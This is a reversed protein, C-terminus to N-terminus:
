APMGVPQPARRRTFPLRLGPVRLTAVAALALLAAPGTAGLAAAGISLSAALGPLLLPRLVLPVERRLLGVLLVAVAAEGILGCVLLAELPAGGHLLAMGLGAAAARPLGAVMLLGTRGQSTAITSPATRWLMVATAAALLPMLDRAPAFEPGLLATVLPGLVPPLLAAYLAAVPLMLAMGGTARADFAAAGESTARDPASLLPLALTSAARFLVLAPTLTLTLAMAFAGTTAMDFWTTVAFRDAQMTALAMLSGGLLPAGFALVGRLRDLDFSVRWRREAVAHSALTGTAAHVLMVGLMARWDGLWWALPWAAALSVVPQLALHAAQPGFRMARAQRHLDLHAVGHVLAVLSLAAFGWAVEPIGFLRSVPGATALMAVAVLLGRLLQAGHLAAQTEPRDGDRSQVMQRDLGLSTLTEAVTIVLVLAAATGYDEIPLLAAVALNRALMLASAAVNSATLLAGGRM